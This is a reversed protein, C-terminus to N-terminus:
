HGSHIWDKKSQRARYVTWVKASIAMVFICVAAFIDLDANNSLELMSSM